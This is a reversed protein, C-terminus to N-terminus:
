VSYNTLTGHPLGMGTKCGSNINDIKLRTKRIDVSILNYRSLADRSKTEKYEEWAMRMATQQEMLTGRLLFVRRDKTRNKSM